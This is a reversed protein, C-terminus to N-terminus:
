LTRSQQRQAATMQKQGSKQQKASPILQPRYRATFDKAVDEAINRLKDLDRKNVTFTTLKPYVRGSFPVGSKYLKDAIQHAIVNSYKLYSKEQIAKYPTNGIISGILPEPQIRTGAPTQKNAPIQVENLQQNEQKRSEVLRQAAIALYDENDKIFEKRENMPSHMLEIMRNVVYDVREFNHLYEVFRKDLIESESRPAYQKGYDRLLKFYDSFTNFATQEYREFRQREAVINKASIFEERTPKYNFNLGLSFDENIKEAADLSNELNFLKQVFKILDGSENCGFCYFGKEYIKMSPTKEEHFPCSCFGSRNIEIGYGKVLDPMSLRAKIEKFINNEMSQGEWNAMPSNVTKSM